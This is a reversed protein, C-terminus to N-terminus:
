SPRYGLRQMMNDYDVKLSHDIKEEGLERIRSIETMAKGRKGWDAYLIALHVLTEVVVQPYGLEQSQKLSRLYAREAEEYSRRYHAIIGHNLAVQQKGMPDNLLSLIKGAEENDRTAEDVMGLALHIEVSNFLRWGLDRRNKTKESYARAKVIEGLAEGPHDPMLALALNNHARALGNYDHLPELIEIAMKYSEIAKTQNNTADASSSINGLDIYCSGVEKADKEPDLLQITAEIERRGAELQGDRFDNRSLAHHALALGKKHGVQELLRIAEECYQRALALQDMERAADARLLLLLARLTVEGQPLKNLSEWYFQDARANDGMADHQEGIEKLVEAEEVSHDGPLATLDERARELHRIAVDPSFANMAQTAAYRNYLLSKDHVGGLYFHRGMEPIVDPTPDPHLKEYARAIKKHIGKLSSSPIDRYAQVFTATRVFAYSDGEKLEKLIGLQVLRELLEALSEDDMETANALISFDFEKGILAAYSVVRKETPGLGAFPNAIATTTTTETNRAM